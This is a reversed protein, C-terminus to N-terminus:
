VDARVEGSRRRPGRVNRTTNAFYKVHDLARFRHATQFPLAEGSFVGSELSRTEQLAMEAPGFKNSWKQFYDALTYGGPKEFDDYTVVTTRPSDAATATAAGSRAPSLALAALALVGAVVVNKRHM